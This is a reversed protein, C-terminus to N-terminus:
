PSAVRQAGFDLSWLRLTYSGQWWLSTGAAPGIRLRLVRNPTAGSTAGTGAGSGAAGALRVFDANSQLLPSLVFGARAMGAVLRYRHSQGNALDVALWLPESKYLLSLLRGWLTPQLDVQAYLVAAGGPLAVAGGTPELAQLLLTQQRLLPLARQHLYLYRSDQQALAYHSLLTPWSPGDELSPYRGDIPGIRFVVQAPAQPGQLHAANLSALAPTYASYSQPVPRPAWPNGSAILAALDHPYIDSAGAWRALPQQAQITQLAQAYAAQLGPGSRAVSVAARLSAL